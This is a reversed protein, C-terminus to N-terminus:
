NLEEIGRLTALEDDRVEIGVMRYAGVVDEVTKFENLYLDAVNEYYKPNPLMIGECSLENYFNSGKTSSYPVCKKFLICIDEGEEFCEEIDDSDYPTKLIFNLRSNRKPKLGDSNSPYNTGDKFINITVKSGLVDLDEQKKEKNFELWPEVEIYQLQKKAFFAKYDFVVFSNLNKLMLIM